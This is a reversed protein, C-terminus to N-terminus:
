NIKGTAVVAFCSAGVSFNATNQLRSGASIKIHLPKKNSDIQFNKYTKMKSWITLNKFHSDLCNKFAEKNLTEKIGLVFEFSLFIFEVWKPHSSNLVASLILKKM